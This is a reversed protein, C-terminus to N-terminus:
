HPSRRANLRMNMNSLLPMPVLVLVVFCTIKSGGGESKSAFVFANVGGAGGDEDHFNV